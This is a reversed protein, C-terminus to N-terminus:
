AVSSLKRKLKKRKKELAGVKLELSENRRTLREIEALADNLAHEAVSVVVEPEDVADEAPVLAGADGVVDYETSALLEVWSEGLARLVAVRSALALHPPRPKAPVPVDDIRLSSTGFGVVRWFSKWTARADAAVVVHLREPKKVSQGWSELVSGLDHRPEGPVTWADPAHATIVVHVEFGGLADLLLAIQEPRAAALLPQSFVLTDRGKLGRRVIGTWAGEVEARQYGWDQHNRLIELAARFMEEGSTAQRCVGLEALARTHRELAADIIDGSGDDLGVHIFAKRKKAMAVM